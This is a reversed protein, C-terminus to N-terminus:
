GDGFGGGSLGGRIIGDGGPGMLLFPMGKGNGTVREEANGHCYDRMWGDGRYCMCGVGSGNGQGNGFVFRDLM